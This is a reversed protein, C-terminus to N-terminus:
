TNRKYHIVRHCNACVPICKKLEEFLAERQSNRIVMDRIRKKTGDRKVHHFEMAAPHFKSGCESCALNSKYDNWWQIKKRMSERRRKIRSPDQNREKMYEHHREKTQSM